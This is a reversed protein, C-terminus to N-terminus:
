WRKALQLSLFRGLANANAGDFNIGYIPNPVFPPAKNLLNTVSLMLSADALPGHESNFLYKATADITTWTPIERAGPTGDERYSDTFNVFSAFTLGGRRFIARARVRLDVPNYATNLISVVPANPTFQNDFRFIYTGNLGLEINALASQTAWSGDLDLGRTREISLNHVRSDFIAGITSLDLGFLNAYGPSAALEQVRAASPNRQIISPGLIAEESLVNTVNVSFEPDTIVDRFRIDYYTASVHFDPIAHPTFDLGATWTRAKEPKLDPNGGFVALTNTVGGTTPDPVPFPVVEFPVPNLDNLLPARFSTGYTARAKLEVFPRWIVGVQPNNTFGFDSYHEVRDALTLELRHASATADVPGMLPVRFEAFGAGVHRAPEFASMALLDAHDFEERRFQGGVAFRVDGAPLSFAKGDLKADISLIQSKAREDLALDTTGTPGFTHHTDSAAYSAMLELQSGRPLDIRAGSSASYANIVSSSRAPVGFFTRDNDTSRHSYTGEALLQVGDSVSDDVSFFAGHRVQEPLLMFPEIASQTYSRSSADLPTRDLYEYILQVSGTDWGHGVTQGVQREKMSGDTVSGYRARTEAGDLNRGLIVNIVGGVADSGYIASAGDTVVEVREVAYLPIMSIDVFNGESNGPAVRHGNVLVLTADNGLGRLNVSTADVTNASNGGGSVSVITNESAGGNFNQPITQIFEQLTSAGSSEIFDRSYITIPFASDSDGRIHTGTVAPGDAAWSERPFTILTGTGVAALIALHLLRSLSRAWASSSYPHTIM